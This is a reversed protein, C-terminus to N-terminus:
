CAKSIGQRRAGYRLGMVIGLGAMALGLAEPEPVPAPATNYEPFTQTSWVSSNSSVTYAFELPNGTFTSWVLRVDDSGGALDGAGLAVGGVAFGGFFNEFTLDQLTYQKDGITLDIALLSLLPEFDSGPEYILAGSVSAVPPLEGLTGGTFNTATFSLVLPDAHAATAAAMMLAAVLRKSM